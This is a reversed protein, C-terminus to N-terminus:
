KKGSPPYRDLISKTKDSVPAAIEKGNTFEKDFQSRLNRKYEKIISEYRNDKEQFDAYLADKHTQRYNLWADGLKQDFEARAKILDARRQLFQASNSVSGVIGSMIKREFDSWSGQGKNMRAFAMEQDHLLSVLQERNRLAQDTAGPMLRAAVAELPLGITGLPGLQLGTNLADAAAVGPGAKVFVGITPNDTALAKIKDANTSMLESDHWNTLVQAGETEADKYKKELGAGRGRNSTEIDSIAKKELVNGAEKTGPTVIGGLVDAQAQNVNGRGVTPTSTVTPTSPAVTPTNPAVTPTSPAVTPTSPAVTPTSPAKIM